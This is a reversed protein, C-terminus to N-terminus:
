RPSEVEDRRDRALSAILDAESADNGSGSTSVLKRFAIGNGNTLIKLRGSLVQEEEKRLNIIYIDPLFIFINYIM